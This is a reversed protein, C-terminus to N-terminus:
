PAPSWWVAFGAPLHWAMGGTLASASRLIREHPEGAEQRWLPEWASLLAAAAGTPDRGRRLSRPLFDRFLAPACGRAGSCALLLGELAVAGGDLRLCQAALVDGPHDSTGEFLLGGPALGAAMAALAGPVEPDRYQRLVNMARILHAGGPPLDFGGVEFRMGEVEVGQRAAEVRAPDADVARLRVEPWRGRLSTLWEASTWPVAGFGLDVAVAHPPLTLAAAM